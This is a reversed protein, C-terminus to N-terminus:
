GGTPAAPSKAATKPLFLNLDGKGNYRLEQQENVPFPPLRLYCYALLKHPFLVFMHSDIGFSPDDGIDSGFIDLVENFAGSTSPEHWFEVPLHNAGIRGLPQASAGAV